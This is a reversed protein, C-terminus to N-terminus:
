GYIRQTYQYRKWSSLLLVLAGWAQGTTKSRINIQMGRRAPMSEHYLRTQSAWPMWRENQLGNAIHIDWLSSVILYEIHLHIM